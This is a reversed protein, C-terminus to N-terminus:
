TLRRAARLRMELAKDLRTYFEDASVQRLRQQLREVEQRAVTQLLSSLEDQGIGDARMMMAILPDGALDRMTMETEM